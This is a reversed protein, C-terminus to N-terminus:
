RKFWPPRLSSVRRAVTSAQRFDHGARAADRYEEVACEYPCPSNLASASPAVAMSQTSRLGPVPPMRGSRTSATILMRLRSSAAMMRCAPVGVIASM